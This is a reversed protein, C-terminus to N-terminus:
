LFDHGLHALLSIVPQFRGMATGVFQAETVPVSQQLLFLLEQRLTERLADNTTLLFAEAEVDKHVSRYGYNTSGYAVLYPASISELPCPDAAAADAGHGDHHQRADGEDDKGPPSAAAAAAPCCRRGMFWLGKAHFTLGKVSFERIHVRRLCSYAKMLYYFSRELQLYFLPIRGAVGNHGNWGNTQVSATICDVYSTGHLVEDVFSAHMNLYPSALFIHDEATSLRLLQKVIVSDHYVGARGAQVTPFLFTDYCSWDVTAVACLRRAWAAFDHLLANARACFAETDVSPDMQLANALIVLNSKRHLTPSGERQSVLSTLPPSVARSVKEVVWRLPSQLPEPASGNATAAAMCSSPSAASSSHGLAGRKNPTRSACTDGGGILQEAFEKRCVVPHSMRNATRVLQTFWRAVLANDKVIMYRDMRTAFYDDSLNAGTLITHRQDFVFVKTHQVGLVEKARGFPAFLRNWKSPNQYLFLRVRVGTSAAAATTTTASSADDSSNGRVVEDEEADREGDAVISSSGLTSPSHTTPSSASAGVIAADVPLSATSATQQALEMLTKLSVLNKRDQMRNYDLLITISFPRGGAAAWRVREELCAVFARSLPGDGIYLASLTISRQAAMVRAKLEEYFDAPRNLVRVTHSKVPLVCCHRGLFSIMEQQQPPVGCKMLLSKIHEIGSADGPAAHSKRAGCDDAGATTEAAAELSCSTAGSATPTAAAFLALADAPAVDAEGVEGFLAFTVGAAIALIILYVLLAPM